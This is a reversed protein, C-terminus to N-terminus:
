MHPAGQTVAISIQFISWFAWGIFTGVLALGVTRAMEAQKKLVAVQDEMWEDTVQEIVNGVDARESLIELDLAVKPDPFGFNSARLAEGLNRGRLVEQRASYLRERLWPESQEELVEIAKKLPVQASLLASLGLMFASGQWLRYWSWPPFRDLRVRVPGCFSPLTFVIVGILLVSVALVIAGWDIVFDSFSALGALKAVVEPPAVKRMNAVLNVGFTWLVGSLLMIMFFPYSVAYVIAERMEKARDGVAQISELARAVAGSEEGARIMYLEASPVWGQMADSLSDGARDRALWDRLAIAAPRDPYKGMESVNYWLRELARSLAENMSLMGQLKRYIRFRDQRSNRFVWRVFRYRLDHLRNDLDEM